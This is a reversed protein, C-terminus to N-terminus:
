PATANSWSPCARMNSCTWAPATPANSCTSPSCTTRAGAGIVRTNLCVLRPLHAAVGNLDHTTLVIALGDRNLDALTCSTTAPPWTGGSSPEDMLLLGPRGLMARAIFVRQQQGGSLHRIYRQALGAIGLRELVREGRRESPGGLAPVQRRDAGRGTRAMWARM